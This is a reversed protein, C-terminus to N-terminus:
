VYHLYSGIIYKPVNGIVKNGSHLHTWLPPFMCMRGTQPKIKIDYQPFETEGGQPENLYLFFVLFRRASNYNGVDVHNRFEDKGNSFYKKMRYEEYGFKEPFMNETINCEEKYVQVFTKFVYDLNDYFIRWDQNKILNIQTFDMVQNHHEEYQHQSSEFKDILDDCLSKPLVNDYSRIWTEMNLNKRQVNM